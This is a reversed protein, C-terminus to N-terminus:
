YFRTEGIECVTFDNDPIGIKQAEEAFKKPPEFVDETTLVWTAWHMGLAKKANIDTFVRVSDQPACHIPSMFQRPMYAPILALDFSGFVKGIEKFAPCVPVEDEKQHDMVSRYGTDGGF